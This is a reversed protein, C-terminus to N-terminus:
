VLETRPFRDMETSYKGSTESDKVSRCFCLTAMLSLISVGTTAGFFMTSFDYSGELKIELKEAIEGQLPKNINLIIIAAIQLVILIITLFSYLTLHCVSKRKAGCCGFFSVLVAVGGAALLFYNLNDNQQLTELMEDVKKIEESLISKPNKFLHTALITTRIGDVTIEFSLEGYHHWLGGSFILLGLLGTVLNSIILFCRLSAHCCNMKSHQRCQSRRTVVTGM